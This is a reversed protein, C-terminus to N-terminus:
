GSFVRDGHWELFERRARLDAQAPQWVERGELSRYLEVGEVEEEQLRTSVRVRLDPTVTLYGSAFLRALDSRLLLGNDVRNLGGAGLSRIHVAVLAPLATVGSAACRRQYSDTVLVRFAGPGLRPRFAAPESFIQLQSGDDGPLAAQLRLRVAEWLSHGRATSTDYTKGQVISKSFDEPVPIWDAEDFFFPRQLVICGITYDEHPDPPGPRYRQIRRRMTEFSFAGNREGFIEWVLSCPLLSSTAFFGGGVIFNRPSHLKFLFLNGPDLARFLRSGSPQWFNVEDFESRSRLFDFLDDDTVGVWLKM